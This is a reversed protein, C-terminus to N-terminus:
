WSKLLQTKEIRILERYAGPHPCNMPIFKSILHPSEMVLQWAIVGGWDHALLVCKDKGKNSVSCFIIILKDLRESSPTRAGLGRIMQRVDDVLVDLQYNKIGRPKDSDGYGRM